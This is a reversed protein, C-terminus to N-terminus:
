EKEPAAFDTLKAEYEIHGRRARAGLRIVVRDGPKLRAADESRIM